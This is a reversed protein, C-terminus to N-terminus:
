LGLIESGLYWQESGDQAQFKAPVQCRHNIFCTSTKRVLFAKQYFLFRHFFTRWHDSFTRTRNKTLSRNHVKCCWCWQNFSLRSMRMRLCFVKFRFRRKTLIIWLIRSRWLRRCIREIYYVYTGTLRQTNNQWNWESMTMQTVGKQEQSKKPRGTQSFHQFKLRDTETRQELAEWCQLWVYGLVKVLFFFHVFSHCSVNSKSRCRQYVACKTDCRYRDSHEM